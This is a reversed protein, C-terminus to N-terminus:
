KKRDATRAIYQSLAERAKDSFAPMCVANDVSFGSPRWNILKTAFEASILKNKLFFKIIARRFYEHLNAKALRGLLKQV